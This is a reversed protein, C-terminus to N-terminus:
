EGKGIADLEWGTVLCLGACVARPLASLPWPMPLPLINLMAAGHMGVVPSLKAFSRSSCM